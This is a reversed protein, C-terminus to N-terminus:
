SKVEDPKRVKELEKMLIAQINIVMLSLAAYSGTWCSHMEGKADIRLNISAEDTYNINKVFREVQKLQDITM